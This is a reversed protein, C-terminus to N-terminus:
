FHEKTFLTPRKGDGQDKAEVMVALTRSYTKDLTEQSDETLTSMDNPYLEAIRLENMMSPNGEPTWIVKQDFYEESNM